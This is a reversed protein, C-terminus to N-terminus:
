PQQNKAYQAKVMMVAKQAVPAKLHSKVEPAASCNQFLLAMTLSSVSIGFTYKIRPRSIKNKIRTMKRSLNRAFVRSLRRIIDQILVVV